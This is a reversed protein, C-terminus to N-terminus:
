IQVLTKANENLAPEVTSAALIWLIVSHQIFLTMGVCLERVVDHGNCVVFLRYWTMVM